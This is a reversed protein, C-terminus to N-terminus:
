IFLVPIQSMHKVESSVHEELLSEFISKKRRWLVMIDIDHTSAYDQLRQGVNSSGPLTEVKYNDTGVKLNIDEFKQDHPSEKVHVFHLKADYSKNFEVLKEIKKDEVSDECAVMINKIRTYGANLPVVLVPTESHEVVDSSVSGMLKEFFGSEGHSSMVILDDHHEITSDIIEEKPFGIRFEKDILATELVDSGWDTNINDVYQELRERSINELDPIYGETYSAIHPFYIHLARLVAGTETSLRHAYYLANTSADSFDIPVLVKKLMGFNKKSLIETISKRLKRNFGGKGLPYFIDDARIAPVSDIGAAIIKELDAVEVLKYKVGALKLLRVLTHKVVDQTATGTGYVEILLTHDINTRQLKITQL